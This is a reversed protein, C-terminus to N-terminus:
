VVLNMKVGRMQVQKTENCTVDCISSNFVPCPFCNCSYKFPCTDYNLSLMGGKDDEECINNCNTQNWLM